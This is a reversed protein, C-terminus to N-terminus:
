RPANVKAILAKSPIHMLRFENSSKAGLEKLRLIAPEHGVIVERWVLSGDPLLEFIDYQRDVM